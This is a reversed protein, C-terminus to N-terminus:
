ANGAGPATAVAPSTGPPSGPLAPDPKRSTLRRFAEIIWIAALAALGFRAALLAHWVVERDILSGLVAVLVVALTLSALTEWRSKRLLWAVVAIALSVIVTVLPM